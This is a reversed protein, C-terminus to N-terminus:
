KKHNQQFHNVGRKLIVTIVQDILFGISIAFGVLLAEIGFAAAHSYDNKALANIASFLIKGPLIPMVGSVVFIMSPLKTIYGITHAFFSLAICAILSSVTSGLPKNLTSYVFITIMGSFGCLYIYKKQVNNLISVSSSIFFSCIIHIWM